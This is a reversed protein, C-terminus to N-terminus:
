VIGVELEICDVEEGEGVGIVERNDKTGNSNVAM